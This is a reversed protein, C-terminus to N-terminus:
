NIYVHCASLACCAYIDLLINSYMHYHADKPVYSGNWHEVKTGTVRPTAVADWVHPKRQLSGTWCGVDGDAHKWLSVDWKRSAM